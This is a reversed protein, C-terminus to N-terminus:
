FMLNFTVSFPFLFVAAQETDRYLPFPPENLASFSKFSSKKKKRKQIVATM